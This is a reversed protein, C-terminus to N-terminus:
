IILHKAQILHQRTFLCYANVWGHPEVYADPCYAGHMTEYPVDQVTMSIFSAKIVEVVSM